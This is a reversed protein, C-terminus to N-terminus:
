ESRPPNVICPVQYANPYKKKILALMKAGEMQTRFDGVRVLFYGPEAYEIYSPIEPFDIMFEARVKNSEERANRTSRSYIQIRFGEMGGNLQRNALIYRSMLTDTAPDQIIKLEAGRNDHRNVPFIDSTKLYTQATLFAQIIFFLIVSSFVRNIM